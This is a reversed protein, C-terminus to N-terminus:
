GEAGTPGLGTMLVLVYEGDSAATLAIGMQRGGSEAPVVTSGATNAQEPCVMQGATITDNAEFLFVGKTMVAIEEDDDADYMAIGCLKAEDGSADCLSVEILTTNKFNSRTATTSGSPYVFEGADIGNTENVQASIVGYPTDLDNFVDLYAM